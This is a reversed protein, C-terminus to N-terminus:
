KTSIQIDLQLPMIYGSNNIISKFDERLEWTNSSIYKKSDLNKYPNEYPIPRINPDTYFDINFLRPHFIRKTPDLEGFIHSIHKKNDDVQYLNKWFPVKSIYNLFMTIENKNLITGFGRMRYKNIIEIPDKNGSIYKYDINTNTMHASICSPTMYVNSGDYYARVCPLHFKHVVSFFDDGFIPFIELDHNMHPSTVKAKLQINVKIDNYIEDTINDSANDLNNEDHETEEEDSMEDDLGQLQKKSKTDIIRTNKEDDYLNIIIDDSSPLEFYEPYKLVDQENYDNKLDKYYKIIIPQFLKKIHIKSLNTIIDEYSYKSNSFKERVYKKNVNLYVKKIYNIKFHEEDAYQSFIMINERVKKFVNKSIDIFELMNQTKIMIDIDAEPYYEDFYRNYIANISPQSTDKSEHCNSLDFLDVLPNKYQICAAMISGSIAMKNKEFDIGMFIDRDMFGSTFINFRKGFQELNCIKKSTINENSCKVGYINNELSKKDILIPFYPNNTPDQSNFPYIPLLSATDIDFIFMDDKSIYSRKICEEYYFRVWSYSILKHALVKNSEDLFYHKFHNMLSYNNLILHCYKKSALLMTILNNLVKQSAKQELFTCLEFIENNTYKCEKVPYFIKFKGTNATIDTYKTKKYVEVLYNDEVLGDEIDSFLKAIEHNGLKLKNKISFRRDNFQKTINLKCNFSYTWYKAENLHILSYLLKNNFVENKFNDQFYDSLVINKYFTDLNNVCNINSLYNTLDLFSIHFIPLCIVKNELQYGFINFNHLQEKDILVINNFFTFNKIIRNSSEFLILELNVISENNTINNIDFDKKRPCLIYIKDFYYGINKQTIKINMDAEDDYISVGSTNFFPNKVQSTM